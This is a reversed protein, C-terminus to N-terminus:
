TKSDNANVTPATASVKPLQNLVALPVYEINKEANELRVVQSLVNMSTVRYVQHNYEYRAGVKPMDSKLETYLDDEYKLCCLLKGCHGTLKPINLTLMQNKARTISINEFNSLFTSCCLPLGCMGVGGYMKARDRAGVQRLEIRTHYRTALAKLLDRFDVREEAVFSFMLKSRDFLYEAAILDMELGIARIQQKCYQFAEKADVLNKKYTEHDSENAHRVIAKFLYSPQKPDLAKPLRDVKGMELGRSTEALVWQAKEYDTSSVLFYQPRVVEHFVVGITFDQQSM